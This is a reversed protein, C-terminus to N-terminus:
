NVMSASAGMGATQRQLMFEEIKRIAMVQLEETPHAYRMTMEIKSHGMIAKLTVLDVGAAVARTAFTHRLDYLRFHACGSAALAANHDDHIREMPRSPDSDLPFVYESNGERLRLALLDAVRRSLTIKRRASKTKGYPNFVTGAALNVNERKMRYIEDPRMGMDLMIVAIDYLPQKCAALYLREEELSVVRTKQNDVPLFKVRSVPNVSVVDLAIFFTYLASITALDANVTAPAVGCNDKNRRGRAYRTTKYKEVDDATITHLQKAGFAALLGISASEYRQTTKPHEAHQQRSHDLFRKMAERFLPTKKQRKIDYKGEIADLRAKSAIGEADRRNRTKTSGQYAVSDLVFKYWWFKSDKRKYLHM